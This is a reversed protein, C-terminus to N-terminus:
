DFLPWRKGKLMGKWYIIPIVFRKLVYAFRSEKAQDFPLTEKPALQYDFEALMVKGYSTLLPCSTYGDYIARPEQNKMVFSLNEILVPFAARVAAATRSTPLSSADGISFVNKYKVHQTTSQDVEIFGAKNALPSKKVADCPEMPPTIHLFDYKITTLEKTGVNEFVAEKEQSKIEILNQQFCTNIQRPTVVKKTLADAYKKVAFLSPSAAMYTENINKRVKTKRFHHEALYM